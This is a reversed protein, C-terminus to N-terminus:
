RLTKEFRIDAGKGRDFTSAPGSLIHLFSCPGIGLQRIATAAAINPTSEVARAPSNSEHSNSQTIPSPTSYLTAGKMGVMKVSYSVSFCVLGMTFLLYKGILPIVLSTPPILEILVLYFVTLAVLISISYTIKHEIAPIYFVFVTLIAILMCPIVLNITYFLTKRRLFVEFTIDIYFDQGCCGPYLQENRRSTLGM